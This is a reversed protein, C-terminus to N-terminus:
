AGLPRWGKSKILQSTSRTWRFAAVM